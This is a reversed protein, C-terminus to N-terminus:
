PRFPRLAPLHTLSAADWSLCGRCLRLRRPRLAADNAGTPRRRARRNDARRRVLYVTSLHQHEPSRHPRSGPRAAGINGCSRPRLGPERGKVTGSRCLTVSSAREPTATAAAHAARYNAGEHTGGDARAWVHDATLPDDPTGPKGCIWCMTEERLVRAEVVLEDADQRAPLWQARRERRLGGSPVPSADGPYGRLV